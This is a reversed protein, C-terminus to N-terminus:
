HFIPYLSRSASAHMLQEKPETIAMRVKKIDNYLPVTWVIYQDYVKQMINLAEEYKGQRYLVLDQMHWAKTNGPKLELSRKVLDEAEDVKGNNLILLNALSNIITYNVPDLKM